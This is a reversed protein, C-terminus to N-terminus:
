IVMGEAFLGAFASEAHVFLFVEQLGSESAYQGPKGISFTLQRHNHARFIERPRAYSVRARM